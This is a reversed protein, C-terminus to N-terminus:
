LKSSRFVHVKILLPIIKFCQNSQYTMSLEKQLINIVIGSLCLVMITNVESLCFHATRFSLGVFVLCYFMLWGQLAWHIFVNGMDKKKNKCNYVLSHSNVAGAFGPSESIGFQSM